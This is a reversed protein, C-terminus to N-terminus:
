ALPPAKALGRLCSALMDANTFVTDPSLAEVGGDHAADGLLVAACGAARAAQMDVGTDGVFWVTPGPAIGLRELAMLVPAAAPKDEAADGAGVLVGFRSSWGLHEVERRLIPGQKNSVIGLPWAAAADLAAATGPLPTLLDLHRARVEAYFLERAREWENGFIAPFADRLSLRARARVEEVSWEPLGFGRLAANMGAQVGRWADVLTNDWDWLIAEPRPLGNGNGNM